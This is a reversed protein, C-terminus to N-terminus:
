PNLSEPIGAAHVGGQTKAIWVELVGSVVYTGWVLWHVQFGEVKCETTVTRNCGSM